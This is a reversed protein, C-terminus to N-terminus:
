RSATNMPMDTPMDGPPRTNVDSGTTLSGYASGSTPSLWPRRAWRAIGLKMLAATHRTGDAGGSSALAFWLALLFSVIVNVIGILAVGSLALAWASGGQAGAVHAMAVSGTSVTVHRIDVPLHLLAFAAPVGGLLFGLTVNAALGGVRSTLREARQRARAPAMHRLVHVSTALRDSLRVVRAWNDIAAGMLSSFWLFVGTLAAFAFSPGLLSQADLVYAAKAPSMIHRGALAHFGLALAYALPGVVVLNGFLGLLQLRVTARWAVLFRSLRAQFSPGQQLGRALAVATHAPLKTAITFHLLYAACFAAAYNLSNVIGEYLVPLHLSAIMFKLATAIAMLLGGGAGARFATWSASQDPELYSRGVAASTDVLNRLVVDTSGRLIKGAHAGRLADKCLDGLTFWIRQPSPDHHLACLLSMRRLQRQVRLLRFSTNVRAGREALAMRQTELASACQKLRGSLARASAADHPAANLKAVAEHLGRFPSRSLDALGRLSSSHAQSVVEHSLDVLAQALQERLAAHTGAHVLETAWAASGMRRMWGLDSSRFAMSLIQTADDTDCASPLVREVAWDALAGALHFDRPIGASALLQVVDCRSVLRTLTASVKERWAPHRELLAALYRLRVEVSERGSPRLWAVLELFWYVLEAQTGQSPAFECLTDLTSRGPPASPRLSLRKLAM